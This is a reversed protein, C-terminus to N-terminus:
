PPAAFRGANLFDRELLEVLRNRCKPQGVVVIDPSSERVGEFTVNRFNADSM